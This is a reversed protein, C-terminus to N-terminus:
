EFSHLGRRFESGGERGRINEMVLPAPEAIRSAMRTMVNEQEGGATKEIM